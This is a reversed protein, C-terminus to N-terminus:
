VKLKDIIEAVRYNWSHKKIVKDFSNNIYGIRKEPNKIFYNLKDKLEAINKFTVIETDDFFLDIDERWDVIQFGKCAPIEFIRPQFSTLIQPSPMNLNVISNRYLLRLEDYSLREGQFARSVSSHYSFLNIWSKDGWIKLNFDNLQDIIGARYAGEARFGYSEGTFSIDCKFKSDEDFNQQFYFLESSYGVHLLHINKTRAVNTITPIWIKDAVFISDFYKLSIPLHFFRISDFPNDVLYCVSYIGDEKLKKITSSYVHAENLVFFVDPKFEKIQNLLSKNFEDDYEKRIRNDFFKLQNLKIKEKWDKKVEFNLLVTEHGMENFAKNLAYVMGGIWPYGVLFVRM